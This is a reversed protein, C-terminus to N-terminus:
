NSHAERRGRVRRVALGGRREELTWAVAQAGARLWAEVRAAADRVHLSGGRTAGARLEVWEWTQVDLLGVFWDSAPDFTGHPAEFFWDAGEVRPVLELGPAPLTDLLVAERMRIWGRSSWVQQVRGGLLWPLSSSLDFVAVPPDDVSTWVGELTPERLHELRLHNSRWKAAPPVSTDTGDAGTVELAGIGLTELDIRGSDGERFWSRKGATAVYPDLRTSERKSSASSEGGLIDLPFVVILPEERLTKFERERALARLGGASIGRVDPAPGGAGAGGFLPDLMWPLAGEVADIGAVRGPPDVVLIPPGAGWTERAAVLDRRLQTATEASESWAVGNFHALVSWGAALAIPLVVRRVGSLATAAVGLGVCAATTASLLTAAGTFDEPRVRVAPAFVEAVVTSSAWGLLLWGWLRPASRAAVLAPQLALLLLGGAVGFGIVGVGAANVPLLLAGLREISVALRNALPTTDGGPATSFGSQVNWVLLDFSVCGAFVLLTTLGTRWRVHSPRYRRSSAFEALAVVLPLGLALRSSLGALVALIAALATLLYKRDQRSKLFLAAAAASLWLAMLDGRAGVTAIAAINLPQVLVLLASARGAASAQESGLWPVLLRRVFISTCAAALALLLLNEIRLAILGDTGPSWLLASVALSLASLPRGETGHVDFLNHFRDEVGVEASPHVIEEVEVLTRYEGGTLGVGIVAVYAYGVLLLTLALGGLRRLWVSMARM